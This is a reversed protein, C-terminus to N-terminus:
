ATIGYIHDLTIMVSNAWAHFLAGALINGTRARLWGFILAPFLIFPQWWQLTVISHGLTFLVATVPLSWGFTAGFLRFRDPRFVDNLRTQMYGRYFFEEAYGVCILQYLVQLWLDEPLGHEPSFRPYAPSLSLVESSFWHFAWSQCHHYGLIFAPYIIVILLLLWRLAPGLDPIAFSLGSRNAGVLPLKWRGREPFLIDADVMFGNWREALVPTYLFVVAVLVLWDGSLGGDEVIFKIGRILAASGLYLVLIERWVIPPSNRQESQPV